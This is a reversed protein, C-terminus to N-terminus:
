EKGKIELLLDRPPHSQTKCTVQLPATDSITDRYIRIKWKLPDRLGLGRGPHLIQRPCSSQKRDRDSPPGLRRQGKPITDSAGLRIRFITTLM